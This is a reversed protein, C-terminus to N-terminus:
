NKWRRFKHIEDLVVLPHSTDKRPLDEFFHPNSALLAKSRPADWNFYLSNTVDEAIMKGLTTKGVQRPGSLFVMRKERSLQDWITRYPSRDIM